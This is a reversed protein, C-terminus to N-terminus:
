GFYANKLETMILSEYETLEEIIQEAQSSIDKTTPEDDM